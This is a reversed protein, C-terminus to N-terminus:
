WRILFYIVKWIATLVPNAFDTIISSNVDKQIGTDDAGGEQFLIRSEALRLLERDGIVRESQIRKRRRAVWQWTSWHFYFGWARAKERWWGSRLAFLFSAVEVCLSPLAILILTPIKYFSLVFLIRNREMWYFKKISRSFEYYHNVVSRPEIVTKYGHARANFCADVDEHYMYFPADFLGIKQVISVRCLVGGGSFYPIELEPNRKCEELFYADVAEKKWRFGGAYGYGLFHYKNGTSNARDQEQGLMLLSQVFAINKDAEAREVVYKLFDPTVDTDQNLLFVYECGHQIAVELGVDNAGSYGLDKENKVITLRPFDKGARPMWDREIMPWSAGHPSPNEVCIVELRDHPYNAVRISELCRPIDIHSEKGNYTLYIIAVHPLM